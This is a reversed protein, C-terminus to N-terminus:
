DFLTPVNNIGQKAKKSSVKSKAISLGGFLHATEPMVRLFIELLKGKPNTLDYGAKSATYYFHNRLGIKKLELLVEDQVLKDANQYAEWLANKGTTLKEAM